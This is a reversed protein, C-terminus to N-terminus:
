RAQREIGAGAKKLLQGRLVRESQHILDKSVITAVVAKLRGSFTSMLIGRFPPGAVITLRDFERNRLGRELEQAIRGAFRRAELRRPSRESGAAHHPVAGRRGRAAPARDFLRGPRDSKLDRDHLRAAANTLELVLPMPVDRRTLDYFRAEAQDAVVIRDRETDGKM